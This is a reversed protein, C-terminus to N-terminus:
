MHDDKETIVKRHPTKYTFCLLFVTHKDGVLRKILLNICKIHMLIEGAHIHTVKHRTGKSTLLNKTSTKSPTVMPILFGLDRSLAALARLWQTM